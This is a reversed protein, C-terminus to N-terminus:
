GARGSGVRGPGAPPAGSGLLAAAPARYLPALQLPPGGGGRHTAAAAEPTQIFAQREVPRFLGSNRLNNQIVGAIERGFRQADPTGGAMAPIAIPIPDTRARTIDIVAGQAMAAKPMLSWSLIGPAVMAAGAGFLAARRTLVAPSTLPNM